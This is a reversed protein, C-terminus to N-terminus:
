VSQPVFYPWDPNGGGGGGTGGGLDGGGGGTTSTWVAQAIQVRDGVAFNDRPDYSTFVLKDPSVGTAAVFIGFGPTPTNANGLEIADGAQFYDTFDIAGGSAEIIGGDRFKIEQDARVSTDNPAKLVQGNVDNLRAVNFLPDSIATGVQLQPTSFDNPSTFPGYVAVSAGAIDEVLTDGDRVDHIEFAGRGVCMYCIELQHHDEYVRYPVSLLDPISRVQGFIDPIRANPRPRNTREALSNNSSRTQVNSLDPMSPLLFLMAIVAIVAVVLAIILVVPGEPFVIVTLDAYSQLRDVDGPTAPTVDHDDGIAGAYIRANPPWEPYRAMLFERVDPVDVEDWTAPEFPNDILRVHQM